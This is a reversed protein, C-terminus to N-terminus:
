GALDEEDEKMDGLQRIAADYALLAAVLAPAHEPKVEAAVLPLKSRFTFLKAEDRFHEMPELRAPLSWGDQDALEEDIIDDLDDGTYVLDAEISQSLYRDPTVWSVFVDGSDVEVRYSCEHECDAPTVVLRGGETSADAFPDERAALEAAKSLADGVSAPLTPSSTPKTM